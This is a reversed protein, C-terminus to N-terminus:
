HEDEKIIDSYVAPDRPEVHFLRGDRFTGMTDIHAEHGDGYILRGKYKAHTDDVNDVQVDAKGGGDAFSKIGKMFTEVDVNGDATKVTMEPHFLAEVQEHIDDFTHKGDYLKFYADLKEAPTTM